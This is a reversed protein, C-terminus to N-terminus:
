RLNASSVRDAIGADNEVKRLRGFVGDVFSEGAELGREGYFDEAGIEIDELFFGNFDLVNEVFSGAEVFKGDDAFEALGAEDNVGVACFDGAIADVDGIDFGDHLGGDAALGGGLHNLAFFKEIENHAHIGLIRESARSIPLRSTGAGAPWCIGRESSAVMLSAVPAEKM